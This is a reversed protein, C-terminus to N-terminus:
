GTKPWCRAGCCRIEKRIRRAQLYRKAMFWMDMNDLDDVDRGSQIHKIVKIRAEVPLREKIMDFTIMTSRLDERLEDRRLLRRDFPYMTHFDVTGFAGWDLNGREDVTPRIYSGAMRVPLELIPGWQELAIIRMIEGPDALESDELDPVSGYGEERLVHVEMIEKLYRM